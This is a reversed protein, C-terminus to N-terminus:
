SVSDSRRHRPTGENPDSEESSDSSVKEGDPPVQEMVEEGELLAIGAHFVEAPAEAIREQQHQRFCDIQPMDEPSDPITINSLEWASADEM